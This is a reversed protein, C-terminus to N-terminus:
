NKQAMGKLQFAGVVYLIPIVLGLVAFIINLADFNEGAITLVTESITSVLIIIGLVICVTAKEPNAHNKVGLVGAVLTILASVLGVVAAITIILGLLEADHTGVGAAGVDVAGAFILGIISVVLGVIGFVILFISSVKLLKSSKEM